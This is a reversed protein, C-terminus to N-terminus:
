MPPPIVPKNVKVRVKLKAKKGSKKVKACKKSKKVAHKKKKKKKQPRADQRNDFGQEYTPVADEAQAPATPVGLFAASVVAAIILRSVSHSRCM